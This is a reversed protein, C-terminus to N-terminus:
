AKGGMRHAASLGARTARAERLMELRRPDLRSYAPSIIRGRDLVVFLLILLIVNLGLLALTHLLTGPALGLYELVLIATAIVV